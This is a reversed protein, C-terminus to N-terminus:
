LLFQAPLPSLIVDWVFEFRDDTDSYVCVNHAPYVHTNGRFFEAEITIISDNYQFTFSIDIPRDNLVQQVIHKIDNYQKVDYQNFM